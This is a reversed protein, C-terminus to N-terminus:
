LVVILTAFAITQLWRSQQLERSWLVLLDVLLLSHCIYFLRHWIKHLSLLNVAVANKCFNCKLWGVYRNDKILHLLRIWPMCKQKWLIGLFRTPLKTLAVGISHCLSGWAMLVWSLMEPKLCCRFFVDKWVLKGAVM